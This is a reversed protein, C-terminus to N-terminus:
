AFHFDHSNLKDLQTNKLTLTDSGTAIVVDHGSQAAHSLVSAFSDFVSKSFEITDHVRGRAAFDKIVDQGFNSAFQFTDAGAKGVMVDNGTSGTLTDSRGSGIMAAGSSTGVVHGTTDVQEATFAHSKGSLDSTQFSWKGNAGTTVSGVSTTGDSLKIESNPDAIGKITGTHDWHQRVNTVEVTSADKTGGASHSGIPPDIPQSLASTNGAADTATATFIHSGHKLNPTTVSWDGDSAVTATGLLTSGEYLKISSGAEATGSVTARNHTTPDSLLVPADPAVTDVTVDLGTSAKSTVGSVLDTATFSHKGDSLAATTYHWAGNADATVSDLQTTGDFVKVTSNAVATGTLTLTQDSTIHDGAVGSDTSFSAIKPAAPATTGTGSTSSGSTSSGSTGTGSTGTGSTGSGFSGSSGIVPDFPASAASANGAVDTATATLAHTGVALAATTVTWTGSANTTATGVQNTGDYVKITSNAEATGSAVVQNASNVTDSAITPAAPAKADVTVAVAASAVSTQGSANTATATLTHKADTLVKTIYDWSGTSTATTSGIQTTGDYIKVTSGAAATGKLDIINVNTIGDAAVGSDPSFSAITPASPATPSSPSSPSSPVSSPYPTPDKTNDWEINGSMTPTPPTLGPSADVNFYGYMGREVYNNEVTVNTVAGAGRTVYVTYSADGTMLNDIVKLNDIPDPADPYETNIFVAATGGNQDPMMITNHEIDAGSTMARIGDFHRADPNSSTDALDHIYNDKVLASGFMNIAVAMGKIDCGVIASNTGGGVGLGTTQTSGTGDITCNLVQTNIANNSDLIGWNTFNQVICNKITVNDAAVTLTGNIIVNEIVAGPTTITMPGNYATLTVGPQVGATTADPMGFLAPDITGTM